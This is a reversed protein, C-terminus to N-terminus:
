VDNKEIVSAMNKKHIFAGHEIKMGHGSNTLYPPKWLHPYGLISPEHHFIGNIHIIQPVEMKPFM